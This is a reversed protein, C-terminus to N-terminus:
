AAAERGASAVVTRGSKAWMVMFVIVAREHQIRVTEVDFGNTV